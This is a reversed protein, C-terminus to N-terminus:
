VDCLPLQKRQRGFHPLLDCVDGNSLAHWTFLRRHRHHLVPCAFLVLGKKSREFLSLCCLRRMHRGGESCGCAYWWRVGSDDGVGEFCVEAITRGFGFCRVWEM